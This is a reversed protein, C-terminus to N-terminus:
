DGGKGAGTTYQPATWQLVVINTAHPVFFCFLVSLLIDSLELPKRKNKTKQKTHKSNRREMEGESQECSTYVCCVCKCIAHLDHAALSEGM